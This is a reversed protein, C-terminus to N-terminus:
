LLFLSLLEIFVTHKFQELPLYHHSYHWWMNVTMTLNEFTFQVKSGSLDTVQM